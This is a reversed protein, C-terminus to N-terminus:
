ITWLNILITHELYRTVGDTFSIETALVRGVFADQM